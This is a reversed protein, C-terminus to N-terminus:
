GAAPLNTRVVRSTRGQSFIKVRDGTRLSNPDAIEQVVSIYEGNDLQITLNSATTRTISKEAQNGLVLGTLAGAVVALGQGSGKGVSSGAIGGAAAGALAGGGSEQGDVKVQEMSIITGFRVRQEQRLEHRDYNNGGLDSACGSVLGLVLLTSGLLALRSPLKTASLM